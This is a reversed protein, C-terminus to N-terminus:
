DIGRRQLMRMALLRLPIIALMLIGSVIVVGLLPDKHFMAVVISAVSGALFTAAFNIGLAQGGKEPFLRMILITTPNVLMAYGARILAAGFSLLLIKVLVPLGLLALAMSAAGTVGTIVGIKIISKKSYGSKDMFSLIRNGALYAAALLLFLKSFLLPSLKYESIYIFGSVTIFCFYAGYMLFILSNLCHYIPSALFEGFGSLYAKLGPADPRAAFKPMIFFLIITLISYAVASFVFCYHWSLFHAIYAGFAPAIAPSIVTGTSLTAFARVHEKKPLTANIVERPVIAGFATVIGQVFRCAIIMYISPAVAILLSVAIYIISTALIVTRYGLKASFYGVAISGLALGAVFISIMLAVVSTDAHFDQGIRPLSPLFIDTSGIGVALLVVFTYLLAKNSKQLSAEGMSAYLILKM